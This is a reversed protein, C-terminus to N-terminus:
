HKLPPVEAHLSELDWEALKASKSYTDQLFELIIEAPSDSKRVDEYNLIFLGMTSDFSIESKSKVSEIGKPAPYIYSYYAPQPYNKNGAWFGFTFNEENESYKMIIGGKEPPKALKGSFRTEALDFSGWFFHVPSSKGRFDTRFIEFSKSTQILIKWWRNIYEQNYESRLDEDCKVPDPVESPLTNITVYIEMSKLADMMRNYFDSVSCNILPISKNKNDSTIIYVTHNFFDFNIEFVINKYPILGTTMGSATLHFAVQWWQNLFPNLELKIKGAVQM